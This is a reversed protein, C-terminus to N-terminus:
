RSAETLNATTDPSRAARVPTPIRLWARAGGDERNEIGISGGWASVLERAIPLGLGTGEPGQRGARGRYFRELVADEEGRELGRGRDLIEILGSRDVIEVEGGPPSYAIANEVLADLARDLDAPACYVFAAGDGSDRRIRLRKLEAAKAWREAARDAADAVSVSEGPLEHEGARSLILLEDVIAALRDVENIAAALAPRREDDPPTAELLEELQLRMGALPTRLQHSADAVFEQQSRILRGLRGTMENFRRALARQETTGEIAARLELDGGAVADATEALRDIPRVIRQAILAGAVVGLGLVVLGLIAIGVLSRRVAANVAEVSQTIRVAGIPPGTRFRVPVATALIDEGLTASHRTQQVSEGELATAIEPRSAYSAGVVAPGSSDALVTGDADVVIVRGRVSRASVSVLRKLQGVDGHEILESASASLVDAQSNAQSRVEADVRDRLSLALPVGLAVVALLLVYAV